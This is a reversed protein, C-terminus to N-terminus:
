KHDHCRACAVTLGLLGRTVTDIQDDYIDHPNNDFLRGVTLFGMGALKWQAVRPEIQDAALQEHIFQNYPTDVNLSQIVYDRFTYADPRFRADGFLLVLDKTDAYRAVGLWHRGWREGYRPSALLRDVVRAFADPSADKEFAVMEGYTPPLGVLD